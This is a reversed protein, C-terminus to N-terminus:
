IIYRLSNSKIGCNRDVDIFIILVYRYNIKEQEKSLFILIRGGNVPWIAEVLQHYTEGQDCPAEDVQMTSFLMGM